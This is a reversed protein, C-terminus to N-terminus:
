TASIQTLLVRVADSARWSETTIINILRAPEELLFFAYGLAHLRESLASRIEQGVRGDVWSAFINAGIQFVSKLVVFALIMGSVILLRENRAHGEAIREIFGLAGGQASSGSTFTSLLPILLGVGAGELLGIIMALVMIVAATWYFRRALLGLSANTGFPSTLKM